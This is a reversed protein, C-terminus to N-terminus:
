TRPQSSRVKRDGGLAQVSHLKTVRFFPSGNPYGCRKSLAKLTAARSSVMEM